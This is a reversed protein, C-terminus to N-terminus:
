GDTEGETPAARALLHSPLEASDQYQGPAHHCDLTMVRTFADISDPPTWWGIRWRKVVKARKLSWCEKIGRDNKGNYYDQRCGICLSLKETDAM